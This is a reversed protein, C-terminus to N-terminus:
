HPPSLCLLMAALTGVLLGGGAWRLSVAGRTMRYEIRRLLLLPWVSFARLLASHAAAWLHM